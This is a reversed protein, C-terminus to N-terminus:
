DGVNCFDRSSTYFHGLFPIDAVIVKELIHIGPLKDWIDKLEKELPLCGGLHTAHVLLAEQNLTYITPFIGSIKVEKQVRELTKKNTIIRQLEKSNKITYGFVQPVKPNIEAARWQQKGLFINCIDLKGAQVM